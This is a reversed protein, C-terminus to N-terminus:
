PVRSPEEATLFASVQRQLATARHKPLGHGAGAHVELRAQPIAAATERLLAEPFFPDVAGGVVLAPVTLRPLAARLDHRLVAEALVTFDARDVDSPPRRAYMRGGLRALRQLLAGDVASAANDGRLEGWRGAAALGLWHRVRHRGGDSLRAGTVVLALRRVADPAGLALHQAILGGTSLGMVDARGWEGRLLDAYGAAVGALGADPDLRHPRQVVVVTRVKALERFGVGYARLPLGTPTDNDLTLGPLVVLPPMTRTPGSVTVAPYAGALVGAEVATM